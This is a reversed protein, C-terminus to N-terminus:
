FYIVTALEENVRKYSSKVGKPLLLKIAECQSMDDNEDTIEYMKHYVIDELESQSIDGYITMNFENTDRDKLVYVKM